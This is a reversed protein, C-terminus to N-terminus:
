ERDKKNISIVSNKLQYDDRIAFSWVANGQTDESEKTFGQKDYFDKVMGNKATPYYYGKIKTIGREKSIRVLEDMMAYEMDRKLVRCSMLWLCIHLIHDKIEGIVVTVVGNDGFKDELKGYLTIHERDSAANEIEDQTYRRTTLNFQNSKNTLQAIRSMYMPEFNKIVAKMDLSLLYDKYNDFSAQLKSREANEKYMVNRKLDDSSLNTIEFFGSRDILNIYHEVKDLEPVAVGSVQQRIIEREAPNDDVFVFSEPLINLEKAMQVLNISKPDWNAKIVIFDEPKLPGDPHNLGALAIDYDNKSIVNLLIGLKKQEILYNQFESYVQGMSTEPGIEINDVGDDGIVGGWLTNDLDLALAKKNKGYISKIINAFSFALRPIAQLCLAYKYMHWYFPDAWNELGYDASLYNIDNIYFNNHKQAFEYFKLNLRTIFNVKGHIDSADKNGLLRYFPYEFNNQIIPCGYQDSLNVWMAKFKEYESDLMADVTASDDGMAPYVTINRNSTHIIIIDPKFDMLKPNDFMADQWYLGYESEYFTPKIGYNLLFLELIDKIDHTTSGGLIAIHKEIFGTNFELLEKKISKRKKLIIQPDFPYELFKHM